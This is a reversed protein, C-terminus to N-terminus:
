PQMKSPKPHKKTYSPLVQYSDKRARALKPVEMHQANPITRKLITKAFLSGKTKAATLISNRSGVSPINDAAGKLFFDGRVCHVFDRIDRAKRLPNIPKPIPSVRRYKLRSEVLLLMTVGREDIVGMKEAIMATIKKLSSTDLFTIKPVRRTVAPVINRRM